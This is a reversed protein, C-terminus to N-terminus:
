GVIIQDLVVDHEEVPISQHLQFPYCVGAKFADPNDKLFTDYYGAGYGLRNANLDFALGPVLILNYNGNFVPANAPHRTGFKGDELNDADTLVLHELKRNELTRSVVVTIEQQLMKAIAPMIDVESGMPIFTHVVKPKLKTVLQMVKASAVQSHQDKEDKSLADRTSMMEERLEKKAM